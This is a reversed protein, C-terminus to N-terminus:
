RGAADPELEIGLHGTSVGGGGPGRPPPAAGTHSANLEGIMENIINLLEQRDGVYQVLPEYKAKAADWDMGHMAPDYFRYKMTRWADGFMETWEAPRNIKVRVNFSIRRRAGEGGGTSPGGRGATSAAASAPGAALPVSYIGDRESFFLTRGDRSVNLGSIGGGFGGGGGPGEGDGQPPAGSTVRALRRGDDQISYVVPLSSTASPESTVFIITRSDPTVTFQSIAFPMRTIQRTRRKMGAWDMKTEHPPRPCMPRRPGIGQSPGEGGEGAGPQASEAEAREEPD